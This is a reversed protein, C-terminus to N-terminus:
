HRVATLLYGGALAFTLNPGWAAVAPPLIGSRGLAIGVSLAVWFGFGLLLTVALGYAAGGRRGGQLALPIGLLTMVIGAAPLALKAHLDVRYRGVDYGRAELQEIRAKLEGFSLAELDRRSRGLEAPTEPLHATQRPRVETRIQGDPGFQRHVVQRFEWAPGVYRAEAADIREVLNFADDFTFVTVGVLRNERRDVREIYYIAQDSRYWVDRQTAPLGTPPRDLYRTEIALARGSAPPVVTESLVLTAASAVTALGLMPVVVTLPSVGCARMAIVENHRAMVLLALQSALLLAFPMVQVASAPLRALFYEAVVPLPVERAAFRGIRDLFDVVFYIALFSGLALLLYRLYERGVYRALIGTM